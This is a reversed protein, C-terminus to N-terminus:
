HAPTYSLDPFMQKTKQCTNLGMNKTMSCDGYTSGNMKEVPVEFLDQSAQPPGLAFWGVHV